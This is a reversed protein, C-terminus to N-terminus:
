PQKKGDDPIAIETVRVGGFRDYLRVRVKGARKEVTFNGPTDEVHFAEGTPTQIKHGSFNAVIYDAIEVESRSLVLPSAELWSHVWSPLGSEWYRLMHTVHVESAALKPMRAYDVIACAALLTVVPLLTKGLYWRLGRPQQIRNKFFLMSIMGWVGALTVFRLNASTWAGDITFFHQQLAEFPKWAFQIDKTMDAVRITGAFKTLVCGDWMLPVIAPHAIEIGTKTGRFYTRTEYGDEKSDVGRDIRAFRDCFEVAPMPCSARRAAVVFLELVTAGGAAATLRMPYVARQADFTMQIPHPTNVGSEARTLRIAAFVWGEAIYDAVTVDATAPLAAFGNEALWANLDNPKAPRLIQINYAGVTATKEVRVSAAVVSTSGGAAPLLLAPILIFFFFVWFLVLTFRNRKFLFTAVLLNGVFAFAIAMPVHGHLDHTIKPQICFNLTKLSGPSAKDITRPVAPLPIMWGLKQSQSDLSSSLLLTEVGDKWALLARQAPIEPIKRVAKEPIYCGDGLAASTLFLVLVVSASFNQRM